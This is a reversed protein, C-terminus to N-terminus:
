ENNWSFSDVIYFHKKLQVIGKKNTLSFKPYIKITQNSLLTGSLRSNTKNNSLFYYGLDEESNGKNKIEVYEKGKDSGPVDYVVKIIKLNSDEDEDYYLKNFEEIYKKAVSKDHIILINEDNKKNANETPNFSGTIITKNDIIFVKHHMTYPNKDIISFDKLDEYRSYKGLQRKELIGKVDLGLYEKNWLLNGIDEDTFSFTMFYISNNASELANIVQLKCNDEPCFYNEIKTNGLYIVPNKTKDGKGYINNKLEEFETLYNKALTESEIIILNNNNYYNGRETPNMSGTIVKKNNLICFKNHMLQNNDDYVVFSYNYELLNNHDIVLKVDISKDLKEFLRILEPIDLDFLACYTYNSANNLIEIFRASCNDQPCFYTEPKHSSESIQLPDQRIVTYGTTQEICSTTMFLLMLCFLALYLLSAAKM